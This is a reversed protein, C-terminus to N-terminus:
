ANPPVATWQRRGDSESLRGAGPFPAHTIVVLTQERIMQETLRRKTELSILPLVDLAPIWAIRELGIASHVLDGTYLANEGGDSIVVCAHDQTHGPAPLFRIDSTIQLEGDAMELQGSELLPQFSESLYTARTRENPQLAVEYEGRQVYYRANPFTPLFRGDLEVTNWGCHDLHLHTNVVATVDGPQVGAAALGELLYGYDGPFITTRRREDLKNGMGTEVLVTHGHGRILLCNLALPVQNRDNLDPTTREWMVKPVVGFLTGADQLFTGDSLVRIELDSLRYVAQPQPM